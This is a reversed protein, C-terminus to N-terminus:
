ASYESAKTFVVKNNSYLSSWGEANIWGNYLSDPIKLVCTSPVSTFIDSYLANMYPISTCNSFDVLELGSCGYFVFDNITTINGLFRVSKLSRCSWFLSAPIITVGRPIDITEIPCYSFASKGITTVSSPITVNALNNCGNFANEGISSLPASMAIDTLSTLNYFAYNRISTTGTPVVLSTISGQILGMLIGQSIFNNLAINMEDITLTDTRGTQARIKDGLGTLKSKSVIVKDAM